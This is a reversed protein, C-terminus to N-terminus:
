AGVVNGKKLSLLVIINKILNFRTFKIKINLFGLMKIKNKIMMLILKPKWFQNWDKEKLLYKIMKYKLKNKLIIKKPLWNKKKM